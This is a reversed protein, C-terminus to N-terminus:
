GSNPSYLFCLMESIEPATYCETLREYELYSYGGQKHIHFLWLCARSQLEITGGCCGFASQFFKFNARILLYYYTTRWNNSDAATYTPMGVGCDGTGHSGLAQTM